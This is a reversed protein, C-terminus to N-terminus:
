AQAIRDTDQLLERVKRTLEFPGFPKRLLPDDGSSVGDGLGRASYGSVFLVPLGPRIRRARDAVEKGSLGPMVLDTILLHPPAAAVALVALADGGNAFATVTYGQAELARVTFRRVSAEDEVVMITESGWYAAAEKAEDPHDAAPEQAEAVPLYVRFTSGHGPASQAVIRGGSQKVIGHVVSLGLGTGHGEAKTTFFPEFIHAQVDPLMGTGTDTFSLRVYAGPPVEPHRAANRGDVDVNGTEIALEGGEEMADRANVVLNLIVQEIQGRDVKVPRADPALGTNLRVDEGILRALMAKMEGVILNLNWLQPALSQKRAYILLQRTLGAAREGAKFIEHLCEHVPHAADVRALGLSAYGNIATLLNNFDHAVGSALHGLAELKQSQRSQAEAQKRETIDLSSGLVCTEGDLEIPELSLLLDRIAGSKTRVQVEFQRTAGQNAMEQYVAESSAPSTLGLETGTKGVVEDRTYGLMRLSAENVDLYRGDRLRAIAMPTPNAHFAKSFRRESARLAAEATARHAKQGMTAAANAVRAEDGSAATTRARPRKSVREAFPM